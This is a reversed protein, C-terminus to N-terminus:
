KVGRWAKIIKIAKASAEDQKALEDWIEYAAKRYQVQTADDLVNEIVKGDKVMAEVTEIEKKYANVTAYWYDEGAKHLAAKLDDSLKNWKKMNILIHGTTHDCEMGQIWYPAVEHWKLGTVASVDWEAADIVGLKLAMYTETPSVAAGQMGVASHYALNGGEAKIRWGQFDASSTAPKTSQWLAHVGVIHFVFDFIQILHSSINRSAKERCLHVGIVGLM